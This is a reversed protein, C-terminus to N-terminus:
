RDADHSHHSWRGHSPSGSQATPRHSTGVSGPLPVAAPTRCSSSHSPTALSSCPWTRAALLANSQRDLCREQKPNALFVNRWTAACVGTPYVAAAILPQRQVLKQALNILKRATKAGRVGQRRRRRRPHHGGDARQLRRPFVQVYDHALRDTLRGKNRKM